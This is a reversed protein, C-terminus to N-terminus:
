PLYESARPAIGAAILLNSRVRSPCLGNGNVMEEEKRKKKRRRREEEEEGGRGM